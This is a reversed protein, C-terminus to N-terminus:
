GSPPPAEVKFTSWLCYAATVFSALGTLIMPASTLLYLSCGSYAGSGVVLVKGYKTSTASVTAPGTPATTIPDACSSTAAHAAPTSRLAAVAFGLVLAAIALGAVPRAIPRSPSPM